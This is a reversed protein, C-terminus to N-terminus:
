SLLSIFEARLATNERFAGLMSSTTMQADQQRVGRCGMCAHHARVVVAVGLPALNQEIAEAIQCTMREQVQLRRAFCEVLRALKSLGVVRAGPLYGVAATGIFPLLHHECLSTFRIGTVMVIEDSKEDFTTALIEAPNQQYGSMMEMLAKVVRRPTDRLGAREADEGVVTLLNRVAAEGTLQNAIQAISNEM